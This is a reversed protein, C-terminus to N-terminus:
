NNLYIKEERERLVKGNEHCCTEPHCNCPYESLIKHIRYKGKKDEYIEEEISSWSHYSDLSDHLEFQNDLIRSLTNM